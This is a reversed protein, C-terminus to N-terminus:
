DNSDEKLQMIQAFRGTVFYTLSTSILIIILLSFANAKIVEFYKMMGVTLPVFLIAMNKQLFKGVRNIQKIKIIGLQLSLFLLLLGIISGPISLNFYNSLFDGLFSYTFIILIELILKM